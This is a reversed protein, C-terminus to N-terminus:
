ISNILSFFNIFFSFISELHSIFMLASSNKRKEPKQGCWCRVLKPLAAPSGAFTQYGAVGYLDKVSVPIGQLLGFDLGAAFAADAARSEALFRDDQRAKYAGLATGRRAHNDIAEEALAVCTTTGDRLATALSQISQQLLGSM